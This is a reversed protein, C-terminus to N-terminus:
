SSVASCYHASVMWLWLYFFLPLWFEFMGRRDSQSLVFPNPDIYQREMWSGWHRVAEWVVAMTGMQMIFWFFNNLVIPLEPLYFRDVDIGAFLGVMATGAVFAAWYWQWRRGIPYFRKEVPLHLKGHKTLNICTFILTLGFLVAIGLGVGGRVKIPNIPSYCWTSNIFSGNQYLLTPTYPAFTLLCWSGNSLTGNDYLTYNWYDLTTLNFHIGGIVTDTANSGGPFAILDRADFIPM